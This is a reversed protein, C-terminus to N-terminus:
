CYYTNPKTFTRPPPPRSSHPPTQQQVSQIRLIEGTVNDQQDMRHKIVQMHHNMLSNVEGIVQSALQQSAAQDQGHIMDIEMPMEGRRLEYTRSAQQEQTALHLAAAMNGPRARLLRKAMLNDLLGDVFVEILQEQLVNNGL